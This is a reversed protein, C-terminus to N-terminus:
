EAGTLVFKRHKEDRLLNIAEVVESWLVDFTVQSEVKTSFVSLDAKVVDMAALKSTALDLLYTGVTSVSAYNTVWDYQSSACVFGEAKNILATYEAATRTTANDGAELKVSGSTCLTEAM